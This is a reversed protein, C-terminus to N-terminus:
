SAGKFSGGRGAMVAGGGKYKKVKGGMMMGSPRMKPRPMTVNRRRAENNGSKIARAEAESIDKGRGRMKDPNMEKIMMRDADSMTRGGEEMAELLALMIAERDVEAM